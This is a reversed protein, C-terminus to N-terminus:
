GLTTYANEVPLTTDEAEPLMNLPDELLEGEPDDATHTQSRTSGFVDYPPSAERRGLHGGEFLPRPQQEPLGQDVILKLFRRAEGASAFRHNAYTEGPGVKVTYAREPAGLFMSEDTSDSGVCLVQSFVKDQCIGSVVLGKQVDVSVIEVSKDGQSIQCPLNVLSHSLQHVLEKAKFKGYDRDAAGYHFVVAASKEEIEAGPTAARFLEMIPLVKTMWATSSKTSFRTPRWKQGTAPGRLAGGTEAILTLSEHPKFHEDLSEKSRVSVIFIELDERRGLARLITAPAKEEEQEEPSGRPVGGAATPQQPGPADEQAGSGGQEPELFITDYDLFLAKTGPTVEFFWKAASDHLPLAAAEPRMIKADAPAQLSELLRKAWAIADDRLIAERMSQTLHWRGAEDLHEGKMLELSDHIATAVAEEDYPNVVNADFLEQAAGALESLVLAGPLVNPLGRDKAAIFEKAVLNMGDILPTVLACDARAYLAALEDIPIPRHIYVLPQHMPTSFLGNIKSITQHVEEEISQYQPVECRSPVAIFLFVTKWHEVFAQSIPAPSITKWLQRKAAGITKNVAEFIDRRSIAGGEVESREKREEIRCKWGEILDADQEEPGGGAGGECGPEEALQQTSEIRPLRSKEAEAAKELYRHIAALKQPMGKTYDLREVSLVLNKGQFQATYDELHQAFSKSKMAASIGQWNAGIPFVGLRTRQGHHDIHDIEPTFGCFRVVCSRFHRLYGYTHFGVLDSGLVGDILEMADPLVCLVEYPPFPTHLFFAIKLKTEREITTISRRLATLEPRSAEPACQRDRPELFPRLDRRIVDLDDCSEFKDLRRLRASGEGIREMGVREPADFSSAQPQENSAKNLSKGSGGGCDDESESTECKREAYPGRGRRLEPSSFTAPLEPAPAAAAVGQTHITPATYSREVEEGCAVADDPLLEPPLDAPRLDVSSKAHPPILIDDTELPLFTPRQVEEPRAECVDEYSPIRHIAEEMRENDRKRRLIQPVMFLHYDHVWILDRPTAVELVIDAFKENVTKYIAAWSRKFRAYPTMWHLLPWLSSNSYGNYFDEVEVTTLWVAVLKVTSRESEERLRGNFREEEEPGSVVAGPWGIWVLEDYQDAISNLASVMGGSSTKVDDPASNEPYLTVPLRNSVVVLRSM